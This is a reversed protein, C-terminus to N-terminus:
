LGGPWFTLPTQTGVVEPPVYLLGTMVMVLRDPMVISLTPIHSVSDPEDFGPLLPVNGIMEYTDPEETVMIFGLPTPDSVPGSVQLM